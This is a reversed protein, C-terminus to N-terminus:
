GAPVVTAKKIYDMKPFEKKLYANGEEQILPQQPRQGYESTIKKVVDLGEVVKGFPAFGLDDLRENDALNIFLQCTRTNPGRSAFTIMGERNSQTVKDDKIERDKWKAYVAPDGNMGWQVVFGPVVRFFRCEDYFGAQVLEHFRDAGLPAWDRQVEVTFDGCSTEFKVRFKDPAKTSRATEQANVLGAGFVLLLAAVLIRM